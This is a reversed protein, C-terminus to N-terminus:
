NQCMRPIKLNLQNCKSCMRNHFGSSTILTHCKLCKRPKPDTIRRVLSYFYNEKDIIKNLCAITSLDTVNAFKIM